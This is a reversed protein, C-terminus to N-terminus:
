FEERGENGSLIDLFYDSLTYYGKHCCDRTVHNDLMEFLVIVYAVVVVEDM